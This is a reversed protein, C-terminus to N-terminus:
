WRQMQALIAEGNYARGPYYKQLVAMVQLVYQCIAPFLTVAFGMVFRPVGPGWFRM